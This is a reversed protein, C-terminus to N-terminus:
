VTESARDPDALLQTPTAQSERPLRGSTEDYRDPDVVIVGRVPQNAQRPRTALDALQQATAFGASVVAFTVSKSDACADVRDPGRHGAPRHPRCRGPTTPDDVFPLAGPERQVLGTDKPSSPLHRAALVHESGQDRHGTCDVEGLERQVGRTPPRGPDRAPRRRALRTDPPRARDPDRGRSGAPDTPTGMLGGLRAPLPQPARRASRREQRARRRAVRARARRDRECHGPANRLRRNRRERRLALVSGIVLGVFAGLLIPRAAALRSPKTATTAPELM